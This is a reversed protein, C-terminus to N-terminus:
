SQTKGYKKNLENVAKAIEKRVDKNLVKVKDYNQLAFQCAGYSTINVAILLSDPDNPDEAVEFHDGFWERFLTYITPEKRSVKFVTKEPKGYGMYAHESLYKEPDWYDRLLEKDSIGTYEIPIYRGTEEYTRIAVDTM